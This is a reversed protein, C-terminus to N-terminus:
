GLQGRALGSQALAAALASDSAQQEAARQAAIKTLLAAKEQTMGTEVDGQLGGVLAGRDAYSADFITGARANGIQANAFLRDNYGSGQEVSGAGYGSLIDNFGSDTTRQQNQYQQRLAQLRQDGASFANAVDGRAQVGRATMAGTIGGLREVGADYAGGAATVMPDFRANVRGANYTDRMKADYADYAAISDLRSKKDRAEQEARLREDLTRDETRWLLDRARDETRWLLEREREAIDWASPGSNYNNNGGPTDDVPTDGGPPILGLPGTGDDVVSGPFLEPFDRRDAAYTRNGRLVEYDDPVGGMWADPNTIQDYPDKEKRRPAGIYAPRAAGTYAGTRGSPHVFTGPPLPVPTEVSAMPPYARRPVPTEFSPMPPVVRRPVPTEVSGMPPYVRRPVPTEFSPMPPITNIPSYGVINPDVSM